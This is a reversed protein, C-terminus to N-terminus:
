TQNYIFQSKSVKIALESNEIGFIKIGQKQIYKLSRGTGYGVDLWTGPQYHRIVTDLTKKPLLSCMYLAKESEFGTATKQKLLSHEIPIIIKRYLYQTGKYIKNDASLKTKVISKIKTIEYLINM